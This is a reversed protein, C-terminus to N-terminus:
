SSLWRRLLWRVVSPGAAKEVRADAEETARQAAALAEALSVQLAQIQGELDARDEAFRARDEAAAQRDLERARREHDAAAEARDTRSRERGLQEQLETLATELAKITGNKDPELAPKDGSVDQQEPGNDGSKDPASLLYAAPVEIRVKGENTKRRLWGKRAVLRNASQRDIGRAEALEDYSLWRTDSDNDQM